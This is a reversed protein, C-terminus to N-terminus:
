YSSVKIQQQGFSLEPSNVDKGIRRDQLNKIDVVAGYELFNNYFQECRDGLLSLLM